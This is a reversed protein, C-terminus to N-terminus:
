IMKKIDNAWSPYTFITSKLSTTTIKANIAMAFINITEVAEPGLIHAGVIEDTRQNIIIKYSYLPANMAKANFWHPVSKYNITINKYRRCAEAESFGVSALNPLTFVVSPIVPVSYKKQNGQIINESVIAGELGSLPTLPVGKDSVDGCAYVRKNATNQLFNNTQVGNTTYAVNGKELDLESIAPVRGATNLIYRSKLTKTQGNKKYSIEYNKRLKKISTAKADFIFEVGMSKSYATLAKVLDADFNNLPRTGSDLVTVKAGGRLAMQAFEMGVYGAGIFTIHKPLKKLKLFDDSTYLFERGKIALRIPEYGTAVVIKKAKIRKGEVLLTEEDLFRPSQHFMHIGLQKLKEETTRPIARTFDRKFKQLKKWELKPLTAMGKHAINKSAELISTAHLLVKKPDCGRNACTGGFERKDAIGVKKGAKVCNEAVTQGAVGTGIVFVDFTEYDM